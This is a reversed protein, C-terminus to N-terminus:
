NLDPQYKIYLEPLPLTASEFVSATKTQTKKLLFSVVITTEKQVPEGACCTQTSLSIKCVHLEMASAKESKHRAM